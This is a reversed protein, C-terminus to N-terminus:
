DTSAEILGQLADRTRSLTAIRADYTRLHEVLLPVACPEVRDAEHICDLVERIARVPLGATLLSRIRRVQDVVQPDFLRQGTSSRAAAILENDAYHRLMRPTTATLEALEGIRLRPQTSAVLSAEVM